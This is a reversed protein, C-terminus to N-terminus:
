SSSSRPGRNAKRWRQSSRAASRQISCRPPLGGHVTGIPNYLRLEPLGEFVARGESVDVIRFGLTAAMPAQPVTGAVMAKLFELGTQSMVIEAPVVGSPASSIEAPAGSKSGTFSTV